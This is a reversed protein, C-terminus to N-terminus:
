GSRMRRFFRQIRASKRNRLIGEVNNNGYEEQDHLAHLIRDLTRTSLSHIPFGVMHPTYAVKWMYPMGPWSSGVITKMLRLIIFHPILVRHSDINLIINQLFWETAIDKFMSHQQLEHMVFSLLGSANYAHIPGLAAHLTEFSVSSDFVYGSRGLLAISHFAALSKSTFRTRFSTRMDERHVLVEEWVPSCSTLVDARFVHPAGIADHLTIQNNRRTASAM